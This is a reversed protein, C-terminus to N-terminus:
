SRSSSEAASVDTIYLDMAANFIRVGSAVKRNTYGKVTVYVDYVGPQADLSYQGSPDIVSSASVRRGTSEGTSPDLAVGQAWIKGLEGPPQDGPLLVLGRISFRSSAGRDGSDLSTVRKVVKTLAEDYNATNRFDAYIKDQVFSPVDCEELLLPLVKVRKGEIEQTMAIGVEKRVWQSEVSSKSLVVAVFEMESIAKSIKEILSDGVQMEAEDIWVRIGKGQLDNALRTCFQRDAHSHSLFVSGRHHTTGAPKSTAMKHVEASLMEPQEREWKSLVREVLPIMEPQISRKGPTRGSGRKEIVNEVELGILAQKWGKGALEKARYALRNYDCESWTEYDERLDLYARLVAYTAKGHKLLLSELTKEFGEWTSELNLEKTRANYTYCKGFFNQYPKLKGAYTQAFNLLQGDTTINAVATALTKEDYYKYNKDYGTESFQMCYPDQLERGITLITQGDFMRRLLLSRETKKEENDARVTPLESELTAEYKKLEGELKPLETGLFTWLDNRRFLVGGNDPRDILGNEEDIMSYVKHILKSLEPPLLWFQDEFKSFSKTELSVPPHSPYVLRLNHETERLLSSCIEQRKRTQENL